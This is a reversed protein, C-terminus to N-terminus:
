IDTVQTWRIGSSLHPLDESHVLMTMVSIWSKPVTDIMYKQLNKIM